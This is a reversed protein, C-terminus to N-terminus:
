PASSDPYYAPMAGEEEVKGLPAPEQYWQGGFVTTNPGAGDAMHNQAAYPSTWPQYYGYAAPAPAAHLGPSASSSPMESGPPYNYPTTRDSFNSQVVSHEYSFNLTMSEVHGFSMSRIPGGGHEGRQLGVYTFGTSNDPTSRYGDIPGAKGHYSSSISPDASRWYASSSSDSHPTEGDLQQYGPPWSMGDPLGHSFGLVTQQQLGPAENSHVLTLTDGDLYPSAVQASPIPSLQSYPTFNEHEQIAPVGPSSPTSGSPRSSGPDAKSAPHARSESPPQQEVPYFNCEKKLRICNSCRGQTDETAVLCRIKRRRCHGCAVSTRHYGLKNRRKDTPSLPVGDSLGLSRMHPTSASRRIEAPVKSKSSRRKKNPHVQPASGDVLVGTTGDVDEFFTSSPLGDQIHTEPQAFRDFSM